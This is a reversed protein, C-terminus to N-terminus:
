GFPASFCALRPFCSPFRAEACSRGIVRTADSQQSRRLPLWFVVVLRSPAKAQRETRRGCAPRPRRRRTPRGKRDAAPRRAARLDERPDPDRGAAGRRPAPRARLSPRDRGRPAGCLLRVGRELTEYELVSGVLTRLSNASGGVAVAQEPPEIVVAEFLEDIRDRMRRVEAASPPDSAVLEDALTGSGIRFSRVQECGTATTGLCIESSGGGVDVVALPGAVTHGLTKTAGLFALRGEEAEGLVEVPREAARRIRKVAAGSNKAERIAATAVIRISEAGVEEALRAQTAVVEAVEALKDDPIRGSSIAKGIRTYARQEMVKRLQGDQPEAVLVRTTNSGIDIAACLM